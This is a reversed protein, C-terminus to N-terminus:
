RRRGATAEDVGLFLVVGVGVFLPFLAALLVFSFLLLLLLLLILLPVFDRCFRFRCRSVKETM